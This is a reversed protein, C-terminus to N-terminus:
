SKSGINPLCKNSSFSFLYRQVSRSQSRGMSIFPWTVTFYDVSQIQAILCCKGAPLVQAQFVQHHCVALGLRIAEELVSKKCRAKSFGGFLRWARRHM